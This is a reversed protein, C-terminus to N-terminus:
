LQATSELVKSLLKMKELGCGQGLVVRELLLFHLVNVGHGNRTDHEVARTDDM